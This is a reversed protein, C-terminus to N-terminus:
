LGDDLSLAADEIQQKAAAGVIDPGAEPRLGPITRYRVTQIGRRFVDRGV